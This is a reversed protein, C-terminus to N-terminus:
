GLLDGGVFQVKGASDVGVMMPRDSDGDTSVIADIKGHEAVAADALAQLEVLREDSVAETDIPVFTDSLFLRNFLTITGFFFVFRLVKGVVRQFYKLVLTM